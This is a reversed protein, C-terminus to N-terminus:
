ALRGLTPNEALSAEAYTPTGAAELWVEHPRGAGCGGGPNRPRKSQSSSQKLSTRCLPSCLPSPRRMTPIRPYRSAQRTHCSVVSILISASCYPLFDLTDPNGPAGPPLFHCSVECILFNALCKPQDAVMPKRIGRTEQWETDQADQNGPSKAMPDGRSPQM